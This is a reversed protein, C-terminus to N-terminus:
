IFVKKIFIFIYNKVSDKIALLYIVLSKYHM